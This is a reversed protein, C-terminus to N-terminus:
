KVVLKQLEIFFPKLEPFTKQFDTKRRRDSELIYKVFDTRQLDLNFNAPRRQAYEILREMKGIEYEHFGAQGDHERHDKMFQLCAELPKLLDHPLIHVSLFDPYRLYSIDLIVEGGHPRHTRKLQLLMELLSKFRPVSLANFTCMFTLSLDPIKAFLHDINKAFLNMKLGTRIYEAQESWTDVSTYVRMKAVKDRAEQLSDAFKKVITESSGLNSNIAIELNKQPHNKVYSLIKHTSEALLPEGGTIRLVKLTPYLEPWWKWFAEVYPNDKEDLPARGRERMWQMGNYPYSLPYPGEQDIEKEWASSIHPFCYLCKFNCKHSFSVELYSPNVNADWPLGKLEDLYPKAWYDNSKIFRDSLYDSGLNEINWCYQCEPPRQGELMM